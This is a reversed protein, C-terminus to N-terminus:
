GTSAVRPKPSNDGGAKGRNARDKIEVLKQHDFRDSLLAAHAFNRGIQDLLRQRPLHRLASAHLPHPIPSPPQPHSM